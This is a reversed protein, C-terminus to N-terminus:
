VDKDGDFVTFNCQSFDSVTAYRDFYRVPVLWRVRCSLKPYTTKEVTALQGFFWQAYRSEENTFMVLDNVKM